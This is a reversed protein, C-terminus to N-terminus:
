STRQGRRATLRDPQRVAAPRGFGAERVGLEEDSRARLPRQPASARSPVSWAAVLRRAAQPAIDAYWDSLEYVRRVSHGVAPNVFMLIRQLVALPMGLARAAVVIPEGDPDNVIREATERPLRLARELERIFEGPHGSLAATELGRIARDRDAQTTPPATPEGGCDLGVLIARREASGVAFFMAAFEATVDNAGRVPPAPKPAPPPPKSAATAGPAAPTGPAIHAARFSEIERDFLKALVALPAKPYAGLRKAVALRTDADVADILRLALEVYQDHEEPAHDPKSVYFDTLVRLLTPKIDVGHQRTLGILGALNPLTPATM